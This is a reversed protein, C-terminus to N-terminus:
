KLEKMSNVSLAALPERVTPQCDYIRWKLGMSRLRQQAPNLPAAGAPPHGPNSGNGSGLVPRSSRSDTSATLPSAVEVGQPAANVKAQAAALRYHTIWISGNRKYSFRCHESGFTKDGNSWKLDVLANVPLEPRVGKTAVWEPEASCEPVECEPCTGRGAYPGHATCVSPEASPALRLHDAPRWMPMQDRYLNPLDHDNWHVAVGGDKFAVRYPKKGYKSYVRGPERRAIEIDFPLLEESM